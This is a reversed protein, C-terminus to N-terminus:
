IQRRSYGFIRETQSNVLLIKGSPDVIVVADPAAELFGRFKDDGGAPGPKSPRSEQDSM